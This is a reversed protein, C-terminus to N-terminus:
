LTSLTKILRASRATSDRCQFETLRGHLGGARCEAVALSSQEAIFSHSWLYAYNACQYKAVSAMSFRKFMADFSVDLACAMKAQAKNFLSAVDEVHSIDNSQYVKLEFLSFLLEAPTQILFQNRLMLKISAMFPQNMLNPFVSEFLGNSLSKRLVHETYRSAVELEDVSRTSLGSNKDLVHDLAHGLEHFVSVLASYSITAGTSNVECSCLAIPLQLADEVCSRQSIPFTRNAPFEKEKARLDFLVHGIVEIASRVEFVVLERTTDCNSNLSVLDLGLEDRVTIELLRWVSKIPLINDFVKSRIESSCHCQDKEQRASAFLSTAGDNLRTLFSIATPTDISLDFLQRVEIYSEFGALRAQQDRIKKLQVLLRIREKNSAAVFANLTQNEFEKLALFKAGHVGQVRVSMALESNCSQLSRASLIPLTKEAADLLSRARNLDASKSVGGLLWAHLNYCARFALYIHLSRQAHQVPRDNGVLRLHRSLVEMGRLLQVASESVNTCAFVLM